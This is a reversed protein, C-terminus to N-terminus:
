KEKRLKVLMKIVAFFERVIYNLLLVPNTKAPIGYAESFGASKALKLARYLHFNNTIIGIPKQIDKMLVRSNRLNEWTTTSTDEQIIRVQEVGHEQLYAAMAAAESIDEGPGQGGSVIVQTEPNLALYQLAKDLRRKLSDTIRIGRIQAGLVIICSLKSKEDGKMRRLIIFEVFLFPLWFGGLLVYLLLRIYENGYLIGVTVHILGLVPWVLSFTSNWKKTYCVLLLYYLACFTGLVISFVQM